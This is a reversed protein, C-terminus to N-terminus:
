YKEQLQLTDAGDTFVLVVRRDDPYRVLRLARAKPHDRELEQVLRMAAQEEKSSLPLSEAELKPVYTEPKSAPAGSGAPDPLTGDYDEGENHQRSLNSKFDALDSPFAGTELTQGGIIERGLALEESLSPFGSSGAPKDQTELQM